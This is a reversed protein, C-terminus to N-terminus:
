NAPKKKAKDILAKFEEINTVDINLVGKSIIDNWRGANQEFYGNM